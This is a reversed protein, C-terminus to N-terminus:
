GFMREVMGAQWGRPLTPLGRVYTDIVEELALQVEKPPQGWRGKMASFGDAVAQHIQHAIVVQAHNAKM